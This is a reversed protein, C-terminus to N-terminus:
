DDHTAMFQELARRGIESRSVQERQALQDVRNRVTIPVMVIVSALNPEASAPEQKKPM